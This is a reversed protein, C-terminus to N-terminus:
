TESDSHLEAVKALSHAPPFPITASMFEPTVVRQIPRKNACFLRTLPGSQADPWGGVDSLDVGFLSIKLKQRSYFQPQRRLHRNALGFQHYFRNTLPFYFDFPWFIAM